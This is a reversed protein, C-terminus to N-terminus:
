QQGWLMGDLLAQFDEGTAEDALGFVDRIADVKLRAAAANTAPYRMLAREAEVLAKASHNELEAEGTDTVQILYHEADRVAQIMKRIGTTDDDISRSFSAWTPTLMVITSIVMSKLTDRRNM